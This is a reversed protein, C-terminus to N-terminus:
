YVAPVTKEGLAIPTYFTSGAMDQDEFEFAEPSIVINGETASMDSCKGTIMLKATHPDSTSLDVVLNKGALGGDLKYYKKYEDGKKFKVSYVITEGDKAYKGRDCLTIIVAENGQDRALTQLGSQFFGSVKKNDMGCSAIFPLAAFIFLKRLSKM